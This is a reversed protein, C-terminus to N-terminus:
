AADAMAKSAGNSNAMDEVALYAFAMAPGLTSGPGAYTKGMVAASCNGVAYLGAIAEGDERLVRAAEDADLGGKTGLEGPRVKLAYYPGKELPGMCPNPKSSKDGYYLDFVNEGKGFDEDKGARAMGNFREVSANLSAADIGIKDALQALSAAKYYVEGEWDKPLAADPQMQAPMIPGLPYKKRYQADCIFWCPVTSGTKENDRYISYIVETYPGAENVFRQGLGNVMIAHPFAREVFLGTAWQAGPVTVSPTGWTLGMFRTAAGQRQGAEIGEGINIGPAVSWETSTPAPLYKERMTQNSEFGGCALVVGKKAQIRVEQGNQMAILGAVRGNEELLDKLGTNRWLPIDNQMMAYRLAAVMGQGLVQRRDRKEKKRWSIDTWYRWLFGMLLAIWGKGRCLLTHADVQNMAIRSMLLTGPYPARQHAFEDGLKAADFDAPEMTRYGPKGGPKHPFYDPYIPISNYKVGFREAMFSVMERSRRIYADLRKPEVEGETLHDLYTKAEEYSDSCGLAEMQDNNPIWIGGGSVASTGGYKDSKEIVLASLGKAKACLAATMGGAGSGVVVVDYSHDWKGSM